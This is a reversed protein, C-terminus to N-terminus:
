RPTFTYRYVEERINRFRGEDLSQTSKDLLFLTEYEEPLLHVGCRYLYLGEDTKVNRKQANLFYMPRNFFLFDYGISSMDGIYVDCIELLPYIPPFDLAWLINKQNEYKGMLQELRATNAAITNPHPKVLLTDHDPLTQALLPLAQWFSSNNEFDEWTPAYLFTRGKVPFKKQVFDRYFARNQSYYKARFNGVIEINLHKADENKAHICDVM